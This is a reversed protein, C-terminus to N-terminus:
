GPVIMPLNGRLSPMITDRLVMVPFETLERAAQGTAVYRLEM